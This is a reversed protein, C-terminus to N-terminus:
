CQQKENRCTSRFFTGPWMPPFRILVTDSSAACWVIGTLCLQRLAVFQLRQFHYLRELCVFGIIAIHSGQAQFEVSSHSKQRCEIDRSDIVIRLVHIM